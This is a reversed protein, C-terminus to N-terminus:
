AQVWKLKKAHELIKGDRLHPGFTVLADAEPGIVRSPRPSSDVVDIPLDPFERGCRRSLHRAGGEAAHAPDAARPM